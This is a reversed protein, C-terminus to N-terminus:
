AALRRLDALVALKRESDQDQGHLQEDWLLNLKLIVGELDPAALGLLHEEVAVLREDLAPNNSHILEDRHTLTTNWVAAATTTAADAM